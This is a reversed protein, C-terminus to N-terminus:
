PRAGEAAAPSPATARKRRVYADIGDLSDLNAPTMDEEAVHVGFTEELFSVVEIVATSDLIGLARFSASDTFGEVTQSLLINDIIYERTLQKVTKM